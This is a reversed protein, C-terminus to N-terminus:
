NLYINCNSAQGEREFTKMIHFSTHSMLQSKIVKGLKTRYHWVYWISCIISFSFAATFCRHASVRHFHLTHKSCWKGVVSGRENFMSLQIFRISICQSEVHWMACSSAVFISCSAGFPQFGPLWSQLRRNWVSSIICLKSLLGIGGYFM